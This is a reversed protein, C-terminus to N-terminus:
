DHCSSGDAYLISCRECHWRKQRVSHATSAPLREFEAKFAVAFAIGIV